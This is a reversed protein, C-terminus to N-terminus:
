SDEYGPRLAKLEQALRETLAAQGFSETVSQRLREGLARREDASMGLVADMRGAIARAEDSVLLSEAEGGLIPRFTENRVLTPVGVVMGELVAKDMGGTPCLNVHLTANRYEQALQHYPVPGVLTVTERLGCQDIRAQLQRAYDPPANGEDGGVIRVRVAKREFENVLIAAAEILLEYHKIPARRGVALIIPQDSNSPGPSFQGTDIGHGIVRLKNTPLQFSEPSATFVRDALATALRLRWTIQRHTYWLAIPWGRLKALPAVALVYEPSFQCFAVDVENRLQWMLRAFALARGLRSAGHEKGLSHVRVNPALDAEGSALCIVEIRKMHRALGNLWGAVFGVLADRADVKYTIYMLRM